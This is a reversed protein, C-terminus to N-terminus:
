FRDIQPDRGCLKLIQLAFALCLVLLVLFRAVQALTIGEAAIHHPTDRGTLGQNSANDM